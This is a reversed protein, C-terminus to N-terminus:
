DTHITCGFRGDRVWADLSALYGEDEFDIGIDDPGAVHCPVLGTGECERCPINTQHSWPGSNWDNGHEWVYGSSEFCAPCPAFVTAALNPSM